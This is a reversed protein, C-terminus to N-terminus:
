ALHVRYLAILYNTLSKRCTLPKGRISRNGGGIFRVAVRYLQFITSLSMLCWLGSTSFTTFKNPSDVELISSSYKRYKLKLNDHVSQLLILVAQYIM